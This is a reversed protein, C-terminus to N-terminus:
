RVDAKEKELPDKGDLSKKIQELAYEMNSLALPNKPDFLLAQQSAEVEKTYEGLAGHAAGKTVWAEVLEPNYSLAIDTLNLAYEYEGLYLYVSAANTLVYPDEPNLTYATNLAELAEDYRELESLLAAKTTLAVTFNPVIFLAEDVKELALSFEGAYALDSAENYLAIAKFNGDDPSEVAMAGSVGFLVLFILLYRYSTTM